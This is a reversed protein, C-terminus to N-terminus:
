EGVITTTSPTAPVTTTPVTLQTPSTSPALRQQLVVELDSIPVHFQDLLPRVATVLLGAIVGFFIVTALTQGLGLAFGATLSKWFVEGTSADYISRGRVAPDQVQSKTTTDLPWGM